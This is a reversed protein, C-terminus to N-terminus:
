YRSKLSFGITVCRTFISSLENIYIPLQDQRLYRVTDKVRKLPKVKRPFATTAQRKALKSQFEPAILASILDLEHLFLLLFSLMVNWTM